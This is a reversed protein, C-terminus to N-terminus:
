DLRVLLGRRKVVVFMWAFFSVSAALYILSLLLGWVFHETSFGGGSLIQRLGEFVHMTPVGWAVAQLSPPLTSLPYYICSVPEIIGALSWALTQIKTTYRFIIATIFFGLALGFLMIVLLFPVFLLSLSTINFRFFALAILASVGSAVAVRAVNVAMLGILYEWISLPTAFLNLLNRAWLEDLFGIAMDRQFAYFLSWIIVAGLLYGFIRSTADVADVVYLSIFGWVVLSIIPWYVMDTIRDFNRRTEYVHRQIIAAVRHGKM